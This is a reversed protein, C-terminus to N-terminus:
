FIKEEKRQKPKLLFYSHFNLVVQVDPHLKNFEQVAKKLITEGIYCWCCAIDSWFNVEIKKSSM